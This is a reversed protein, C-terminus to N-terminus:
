VRKRFQVLNGQRRPPFAPKRASISAGSSEQLSSVGKECRREALAAASKNEAFTVDRCFLYRKETGDLHIAGDINGKATLM